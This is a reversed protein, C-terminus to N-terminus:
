EQTEHQESPTEAPAEEEKKEPEPLKDVINASDILIDYVKKKRINFKMSDIQDNKELRARVKNADDGVREALENIEQNVDEDTVEVNELQAIKDLLLEVKAMERGQPYFRRSFDDMTLKQQKLMQELSSGSMHLQYDMNRAFSEIHSMVLSPPVMLDPTKEILQTMLQEQLHNREQETLMNEFNKLLNAKLEDFTQYPSVSKAFDDNLEPMEKKMLNHIKMKFVVQQGALKKNAYDEPFVADFEFEDGAKKGVVNNFFDAIYSNRDLTMYYDKASGGEVPEGNLTSEFDVLAVDGEVLPRDEDSPEMQAAQESLAKIRQEVMENPDQTRAKKEITLGKYDSLDFEPKVEVMVEFELPKGEELVIKEYPTCGPIGLPLINEAKIAEMTVDPILQDLLEKKIADVGLRRIVAKAPAKGKRFGPLAIHKVVDQVAKNLHKEYRQPEVELKLALEIPSKRTVEVKM